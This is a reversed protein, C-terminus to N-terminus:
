DLKDDFIDMGQTSMRSKEEYKVSDASLVPVYVMSVKTPIGQLNSFFTNFDQIYPPIIGGRVGRPRSALFLEWNHILKKSNTCIVLPSGLMEKNAKMDQRIVEAIHNDTLMFGSPGKFSKVPTLVTTDEGNVQEVWEHVGHFSNDYIVNVTYSRM